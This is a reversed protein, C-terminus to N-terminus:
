GERNQNPIKGETENKYRLIMANTMDVFANARVIKGGNITRQTETRTVSFDVLIDGTKDTLRIVMLLDEPILYLFGTLPVCLSKAVPICRLLKDFTILWNGSFDSAFKSSTIDRSKQEVIGNITFTDKNIILADIDSPQDKKTNVIFYQPFNSVFIEYARTEHSLSIQGKPTNVDLGIEM